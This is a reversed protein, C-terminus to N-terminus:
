KILNVYKTIQWKDNTMQWEDSGVLTQKVIGNSKNIESHPIPYFYMKETFTRKEVEKVQYSFHNGNKPLKYELLRSM